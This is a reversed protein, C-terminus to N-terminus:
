RPSRFLHHVPSVKFDPMETFRLSDRLYPQEDGEMSLFFEKGPDPKRRPHWGVFDIVEKCGFTNFETHFLYSNLLVPSADLGFAVPHNEKAQLDRLYEIVRFTYADYWWEFSERLNLCRVNNILAFLLVPALYAWARQGYNAWLWAGASGLLLAFLPYFFVATRANLFPIHLLLFQLMNVAFAGFFVLAAWERPHQALQWRGRRLRAMAVAWAGVSFAAAMGALIFKTQEGLLPLGHTSSRMLEVATEKFFGSDGWFKLEGDARMKFMPPLCLLALILSVKWVPRARQWFDRMGESRQAVAWALLLAFPLYFNLLTFNAEVALLGLVMAWTLTPKHGNALYTWGREIALLMLGAAMGYGRCLSMFETVYPNGLLLLLTFWRVAASLSIRHAIRVSALVYLVAGILAPLRAVFHGMGFIGAMIKVALTNLVHNNPVAERQYHVIDYALRPVHNLCTSVEDHTMPLLWARATVYALYVAGLAWFYLIERNISM